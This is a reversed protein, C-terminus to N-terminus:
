VYRNAVHTQIESLLRQVNWEHSCSILCVGAAQPFLDRYEREIADHNQMQIKKESLALGSEFLNIEDDM